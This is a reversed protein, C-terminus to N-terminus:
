GWRRRAVVGLFPTTVSPDVREKWTAEVQEWHGGFADACRQVVEDPAQDVTLDDPALASHYLSLDDILAEALRWAKQHAESKWDPDEPQLARRLAASPRFKPTHRGGIWMKRRNAVSRVVRGKNWKRSLTGLGHLPVDEGRSVQETAVQVLTELVTRVTSRPVGARNAVQQLLDNWTM